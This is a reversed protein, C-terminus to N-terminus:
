YSPSILLRVEQSYYVCTKLEPKHCYSIVSEDISGLGPNTYYYGTLVYFLMTDSWPGIFILLILKLLFTACNNMTPKM